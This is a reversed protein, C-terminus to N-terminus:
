PKRHRDDELGKEPPHESENKEVSRRSEKIEGSSTLESNFEDIYNRAENVFRGYTRPWGRCSRPDACPWKDAHDYGLM